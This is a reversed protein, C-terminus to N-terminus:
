EVLFESITTFIQEPTEKVRMDKGNVFSITTLQQTDFRTLDAVADLNIYAAISDVRTVKKWAM